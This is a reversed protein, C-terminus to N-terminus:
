GGLTLVTILTRFGGGAERLVTILTRFAEELRGSFRTNLTRFAEELRKKEKPLFNSVPIIGTKLLFAGKEAGKRGTKVSKHGDLRGTDLNLVTL